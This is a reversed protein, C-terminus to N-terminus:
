RILQYNKLKYKWKGKKHLVQHVIMKTADDFWVSTNLKSGRINYVTTNFVQNMIIFKERKIFKVKQKIVRCTIGSVQKSVTLIDHNWYSSIRFPKKIYGDYNTGHIKYRSSNLRIKCFKLKGNDDTESDFAVLQGSSDYKEIGLSQYKYFNVGFKKLNFKINNTVILNGNKSWKFNIHHYGVYKGNRSIDFQLNQLNINHALHAFSPPTKLCLLLLIYKKM